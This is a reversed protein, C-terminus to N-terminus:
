PVPDTSHALFRESSSWWYQNGNITCKTSVWFVILQSNLWQNLAPCRCNSMPDSDSSAVCCRTFNTPNVWSKPFPVGLKWVFFDYSRSSESSSCNFLRNDRPPNKSSSWNFKAEALLDGCARAPSAMRSFRPTGFSQAMMAAMTLRQPTRIFLNLIVCGIILASILWLGLTAVPLLATQNHISNTPSYRWLFEQYKEVVPRRKLLTVSRPSQNAELSYRLWSSHAVRGSIVTSWDQCSM